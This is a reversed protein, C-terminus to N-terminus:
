GQGHQGEKWQKIVEDRAQRIPAACDNCM